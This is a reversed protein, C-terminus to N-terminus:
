AAGRRACLARATEAAERLRAAGAPRLAIGDSGRELLGTKVLPGLHRVLLAPSWALVTALARLSLPGAHAQLADLLVFDSWGLGHWTGLADDLALALHDQAHRQALAQALPDATM